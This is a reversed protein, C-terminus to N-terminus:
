KRGAQIILKIEGDLRRDLDILNEKEWRMSALTKAIPSRSYADVVAMQRNSMQLALEGRELIMQTYRYDKYLLMGMHFTALGVGLLPNPQGLVLQTATYTAYCILKFEHYQISGKTTTERGLFNSQLLYKDSWSMITRVAFVDIVMDSAFEKDINFNMWEMKDKLKAADAFSSAAQITSESSNPANLAIRNEFIFKLLDFFRFTTNQELMEQAAKKIHAEPYLESRFKSMAKTLPHDPNNPEITKDLLQDGVGVFLGLGVAVCYDIISLVPESGIQGIAEDLESQRSLESFTLYTQACSQESEAVIQEDGGVLQSIDIIM